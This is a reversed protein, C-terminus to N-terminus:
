NNLEFPEDISIRCHSHIRCIAGTIVSWYKYPIFALSLPEADVKTKGSSILLKLNDFDSHEFLKSILHPKELFTDQGNPSTIEQIYIESLAKLNKKSFRELSLVECSVAKELGVPSTEICRDLQINVDIITFNLGNVEAYRRAAVIGYKKGLHGYFTTLCRPMEQYLPIGCESLSIEEPLEDKYFYLTTLTTQGQVRKYNNNSCDHDLLM